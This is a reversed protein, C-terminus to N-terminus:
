REFGVQPAGDAFALHAHVELRDVLEIGQREATELRQRAPHMRLAAGILGATNMASASSDPWMSASVSQIM